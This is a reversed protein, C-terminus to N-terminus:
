VAVEQKLNERCWALAQNYKLPALTKGDHVASARRGGGTEFVVRFSNDWPTRGHQNRCAGWVTAYNRLHIAMSEESICSILMRLQEPTEVKFRKITM